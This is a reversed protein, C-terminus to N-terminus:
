RFRALWVNDTLELPWRNPSFWVLGLLSRSLSEIGSSPGHIGFSSNTPGPRSRFTWIKHLTPQCSLMPEVSLARKQRGTTICPRADLRDSTLLAKSSLCPNRKNKNYIPDCPCRRTQCGIREGLSAQLEFTSGDKHWNGSFLANRKIEKAIRHHTSTM